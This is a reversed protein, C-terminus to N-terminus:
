NKEGLKIDWGALYQSLLVSDKSTVRGDGDVDAAKLCIDAQWGALYQMIRVADKTDIIGDCHVDGFLIDEIDIEGNEVHLGVEELNKNVVDNERYTLTIPTKGIEAGEKVKFRLTFLAGNGTFDTPTAYVVKINNLTSTKNNEDITTTITGKLLDSKEVSVIELKTNDFAINFTFGAIGINRSILVNVDVTDGVNGVCKEVTILPASQSLKWKWVAYLTIDKNESYVDGSKYVVAGGKETAWGEFDYTQRTPTVNSIRIEEGHVKTQASPANEGGCADYRITYTKIKEWVAYLTTNKDENYKEGPKYKVSGNESTSWGLFNCGSKKPTGSSIRIEEGHVKTQASPAGTGGNANYTITYKEPEEDKYRYVTRTKGLDYLYKGTTSVNSGLSCCKNPYCKYSKGGGTWPSGNDSLKTDSWYEHYNLVDTPDSTFIKYDKVPYAGTFGTDTWKHVYHYYGYQTKSEITRYDKSSPKTESWESWGDEKEHSSDPVSEKPQSIKYNAQWGWGRYTYGRSTVYDITTSVIKGGWAHVITNNGVYIASHGADKGCYSDIEGADGFYVTAGLPIDNRSNSQKWKGWANTACCANADKGFYNYIVQWVFAQCYGDKFTEGVRGNVYEVFGTAESTDAGGSELTLYVWVTGGNIKGSLYRGSVYKYGNKPKIDKIEYSTGDAYSTCFDGVDNKVCSGNIYVDFTVYGDLGTKYIGDVYGNVDITYSESAPTTSASSSVYAAYDLCVWGTVGNCTTKGWNGDVQTVVFNTGSAIAGVKSYSTSAGSRINLGEVKSPKYTGTSYSFTAKNVTFERIASIPGAKGNSGYGCMNFRYTGAPLVGVVYSTGTFNSGDIVKENTANNVITLGYRTANKAQTWTIVVKENTAYVSKGSSSTMSGVNNDTPESITTGTLTQTNKIVDNVNIYTELATDIIEYSNYYAQLRGSVNLAKKVGAFFDNYNKFYALNDALADGIGLSAGTQFIDEIGNKAVNKLVDFADVSSNIKNGSINEALYKIYYETTKLSSICNRVIKEYTQADTYSLGNRDINKFSSSNYFNYLETMNKTCLNMLDYVNAVYGIYTASDVGASTIFDLYSQGWGWLDGNFANCLGKFNGTIANGLVSEIIDNGLSEIIGSKEVIDDALKTIKNRDAGVIINSKIVSVYVLKEILNKDTVLNFNSDVYIVDESSLGEYAGKVVLKLYKNGNLVVTDSPIYNFKEENYNIKTTAHVSVQMFLPVIMAFLVIAIILIKKETKAKTKMEM